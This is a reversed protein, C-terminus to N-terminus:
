ESAAKDKKLRMINIVVPPAPSSPPSEEKKDVFRLPSFPVLDVQCSTAVGIAGTLHLLFSQTCSALSVGHCFHKKGASFHKQEGALWSNELTRTVIEEREYLIDHYKELICFFGCCNTYISFIFTLM